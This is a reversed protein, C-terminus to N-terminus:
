TSRGFKFRKFFCKIFNNDDIGTYSIKKEDITGEIDENNIIKEPNGTLLRERTKRGFKNGIEMLIDELDYNRYKKDHVDSALLDVLNLDIWEYIEKKYRRKNKNM